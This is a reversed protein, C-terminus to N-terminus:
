EVEPPNSHDDQADEMRYVEREGRADERRLEARREDEASQLISPFRNNLMGKLHLTEIEQPTMNDIQRM